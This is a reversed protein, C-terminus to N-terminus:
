QRPKFIIVKNENDVSYSAVRDMVGNGLLLPAQVNASVTAIVDSCVIQGGIVLEHLRIVMKEVISGDAIHVRTTGLIDDETICGKEYLYRAESLSISTGSCGTDFIMKVTFQGNIMVDITKVGGQEEFPVSVESDSIQPEVVETTDEMIDSVDYYALSKKKEHCSALLTGALLLIIAQHKMKM